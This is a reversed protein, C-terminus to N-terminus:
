PHILEVTTKRIYGWSGDSTKVAYWKPNNNGAFYVVFQDGKDFSDIEDSNNAATASSKEYVSIAKKARAIGIRQYPSYSRMTSEVNSTKVEAASVTVVPVSTVALVGAIVLSLLKKNM